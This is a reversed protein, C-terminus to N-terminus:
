CMQGERSICGYGIGFKVKMESLARSRAARQKISQALLSDHLHGYSVGSAAAM